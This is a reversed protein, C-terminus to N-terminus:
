HWLFVSENPYDPIKRRPCLMNRERYRRQAERNQNRRREEKEQITMSRSKKRCRAANTQDLNSPEDTTRATKYCNQNSEAAYSSSDVFIQNNGPSKSVSDSIMARELDSNPPLLSSENIFMICELLSQLTPRYTELLEDISPDDHPSKPKNSDNSSLHWVSVDQQDQAQHQADLSQSVLDDFCAQSYM